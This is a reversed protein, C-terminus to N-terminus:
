LQILDTIVLMKTLNRHFLKPKVETGVCTERLHSRRLIPNPSECRVRTRKGWGPEQGTGQGLKHGTGPCSEPRAEAESGRGAATHSGLVPPSPCQGSLLEELGGQPLEGPPHLVARSM